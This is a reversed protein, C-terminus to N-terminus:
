YNLPTLLEKKSKELTKTEHIVDSLNKGFLNEGIDSKEMSERVTTKLGPLIVARRSQSEMHHVDCLLRICNSLKEIADDDNIQNENDLLNQLFESLGCIATGIQNQKLSRYEDRKLAQKSLTFRVEPNLLPASTNCNKITPISKTISERSEKTLGKQLIDQWINKVEPHLNFRKQVTQIHGIKESSSMPKPINEKDSDGSLSSDSSIVTRRRKRVRPSSQLEDPFVYVFIFVPLQPVEHVCTSTCTVDSHILRVRAIPEPGIAPTWYIWTYERTIDSPSIILKIM